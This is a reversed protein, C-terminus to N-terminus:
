VKRLLFTFIANTKDSNQKLSLLTYYFFIDQIIHEHKIAIMKEKAGIFTNYIKLAKTVTIYM